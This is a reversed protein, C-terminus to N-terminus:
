HAAVLKGHTVIEKQLEPLSDTTFMQVNAEHFIGRVLDVTELTPTAFDAVVILQLEGLEPDPHNYVSLGEMGYKCAANRVQAIAQQKFEIPQILNFRGNQFGYPVTLEEKLTPVQVKLDKRMYPRVATDMLVADLRERLPITAQISLPKQPELVLEKYLAELDESPNFVKVPKPQTLIIKNARTAVFTQLNELTNFEASEVRLRHTLAEKMANLHEYHDSEEGFFRRIRNNGRTMRAELFRVEPCFLVVGVNAAEQRAIDPCYQVLCFYGKTANMHEKEAYSPM